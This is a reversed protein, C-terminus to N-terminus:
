LFLLRLVGCHGRGRGYGVKIIKTKASILREEGGNAKKSGQRISRTKNQRKHVKELSKRQWHGTSRLGIDEKEEPSM